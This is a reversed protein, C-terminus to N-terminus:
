APSARPTPRPRPARTTRAPAAAGHPGRQHLGEAAAPSAADWLGLQATRRPHDVDAQQRAAQLRRSTVEATQDERDHDLVLGGLREDDDGGRRAGRHAPDQLAQVRFKAEPGYNELYFRWRSAESIDPEYAETCICVLWSIDQTSGTPSISRLPIANKGYAWPALEELTTSGRRIRRERFRQITWAPDVVSDDMACSVVTVDSRPTTSERMMRVTIPRRSVGSSTTTTRTALPLTVLQGDYDAAGAVRLNPTVAQEFYDGTVPDRVGHYLAGQLNLVSDGLYEQAPSASTTGILIDTLAGDSNDLEIATATAEPAAGALDPIGGTIRDVRMIGPLRGDPHAVPRTAWAV